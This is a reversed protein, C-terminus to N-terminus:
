NEIVIKRSLPLPINYINFKSLKSLPISKEQLLLELESYEDDSISDSVRIAEIVDAWPM